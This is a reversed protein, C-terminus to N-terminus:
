IELNKIMLDEGSKDTEFLRNFEEESIIIDSNHKFYLKYSKNDKINIKVTEEIRTVKTLDCYLENDGSTAYRTHGIVAHGSYDRIKTLRKEIKKMNKEM